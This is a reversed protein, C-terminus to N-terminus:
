GSHVAEVHARLAPRRPGHGALVRQQVRAAVEDSVEDHAMHGWWVLVDTSELVAATLGHEPEDLTATRVLCGRNRELAKPSPGTSGRRTSRLSRPIAEERAQERELGDRSNNTSM